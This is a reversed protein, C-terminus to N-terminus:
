FSETMEAERAEIGRRVEDDGHFGQEQRLFAGAVFRELNAADKFLWHINFWKGGSPSVADGLWASNKDRLVTLVSELFEKDYEKFMPTLARVNGETIYAKPIKTGKVAENWEWLFWTVTERTAALEKSIMSLTM